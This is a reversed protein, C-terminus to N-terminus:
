QPHNRSSSSSSSSSNTQKTGQKDATVGEQCDL